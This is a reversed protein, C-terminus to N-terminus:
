GGGVARLIEVDAGEDLTTTAHESRPIVRRDVVVAVGAPGLESLGLERLLEQVTVNAGVTREEGNVKVTM